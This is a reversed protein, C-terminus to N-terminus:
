ARHTMRNSENIVIDLFSNELERPLEDGADRITEAYSRINTLPPACSTPSTRWSSAAASRPRASSRSTMSCSSCAAASKM